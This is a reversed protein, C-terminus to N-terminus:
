EEVWRRADDFESIDFYRIKAGTFPMCFVAMGKQWHREGVLALREIDSFHRIDLKLDEWMAGATWGHFDRMCFLVRIKGHTEILREFAPVLTEYDEKELKGSVLVELVKGGAKEHLAIKKTLSKAVAIRRRQHERSLSKELSAGSM